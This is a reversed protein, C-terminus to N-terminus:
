RHHPHFENHLFNWLEDQDVDNINPSPQNKTSKDTLFICCALHSKPFEVANDARKTNAHFTSTCKRLDINFVLFSKHCENKLCRTIADSKQFHWTLTLESCWRALTFIPADKPNYPTVLNNDRAWADIYAGSASTISYSRDVHQCTFGGTNLCPHPYVSIQQLFSVPPHCNTALSM